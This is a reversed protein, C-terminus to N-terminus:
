KDKAREREFWDPGDFEEENKRRGKRFLNRRNLYAFINRIMGQRRTGKRRDDSASDTM